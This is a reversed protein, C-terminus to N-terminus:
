ANNEKLNWSHNKDAVFAMSESGVNKNIHKVLWGGPVKMRETKSGIPLNQEMLEWM